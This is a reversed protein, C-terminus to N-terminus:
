VGRHCYMPELRYGSPASHSRANLCSCARRAAAAASSLCRRRARWRYVILRRPLTSSRVADGGAAPPLLPLEGGPKSCVPLLLLEGGPEACGCGCGCRDLPLPRRRRADTTTARSWRVGDPRSPGLM